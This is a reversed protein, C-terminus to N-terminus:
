LEYNTMQLKGGGGLDWRLTLGQAVLDMWGPLAPKIGAIQGMRTVGYGRRLRVCRVNGRGLRIDM